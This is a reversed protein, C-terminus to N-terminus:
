PAEPWTINWPFGTQAPMDRLEQRYTAWVAADVTTDPLQSWDCDALRRNREQCINTSQIATRETVEKTSANSVLWKQQYTGGAAFPVGETFNQTYTIAPEPVQQVIAYGMEAISAEFGVVDAPFSTNPHAARVDAASLPYEGTATNIYAM